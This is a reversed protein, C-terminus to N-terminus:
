KLGAREREADSLEYPRQAQAAAVPDIPWRSLRNGSFAYFETGDRKFALQLTNFSDQPIVSAIKRREVDVLYIAPVGPFVVTFWRSDASFAGLTGSRISSPRDTEQPVVETLLRMKTVDWLTARMDPCALLLEGDEDFTLTCAREASVAIRGREIGTVLDVLEVADYPPVCIALETSRPRFAFRLPRVDPRRPEGDHERLLVLAGDSTTRIEVRNRFQLGIWREGADFAARQVPAQRGESLNLIEGSPARLLRPGDLPSETFVLDGAPSVVHTHSRKQPMRGIEKGSDLEILRAVAGRADHLLARAGSGDLAVLSGEVDVDRRADLDLDWVSVGQVTDRVVRSGDEALLPGRLSRSGADVPTPGYRSRTTWVRTTQDRSGTVVFQGDRHFEISTIHGGHGVLRAVRQGTSLHAITINEDGAAIAVFDGSFDFICRQPTEVSVPFERAVTGTDVNWVRVIGTPSVGVLLEGDPSFRIGVMGNAHDLEAHQVGEALDWVDITRAGLVAVRESKAHLTLSIVPRPLELTELRQADRADFVAVRKGDTTVIRAGDATFQAHTGHLTGVLSGDSADFLYSRPRRNGPPPPRGSVGGPGPTPVLIPALRTLVIRSGASDFSGTQQPGGPGTRLDFLHRGTMDYVAGDRPMVVLVQKEDPAVVAVNITSARTRWELSPRWTRTDWITIHGDGYASLVRDTGLFSTAVTGRAGAPIRRLRRYEHLRGLAKYLVGDAARGPRKRIAELGLLLARAPDHEVEATARSVLSAARAADRQMRLFLIAVFGIAAVAALALATAPNRRVWKRLEILAGTAHAQVVRGELYARLDDAMAAASAYRGSREYAMAKECISVLEAPLKGAPGRRLPVAPGELVRNLVARPTTAVGREQYPPQGALLHYLIAGISYVDSQTDVDAARGDAQEPSMYTPTGVIDGEGTLVPSSPSDLGPTAATSPTDGPDAAGDKPRVLKAIGWDLVYTEGFRGVMINSPKLDRHLVGKSHAFAVAECLKLVVGLVRTTTWGDARRHALAFVEDLTRGQVLPMTFYVKGNAQLGLEHVPVIGPHELQSTIQAENVFRELVVRKEQPTRGSPRAPHQRIVKMALTRRLDEDWVELITGMGGRALEGIVTYRSEQPAHAALKALFEDERVLEADHKLTSPTDPEDLVDLVNRVGQRYAHLRRLDQGIGPHQECYADLDVGGRRLFESYAAEAEASPWSSASSEEPSM